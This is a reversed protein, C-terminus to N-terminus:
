EHHSRHINYLLKVYISARIITNNECLIAIINVVWQLYSEMDHM